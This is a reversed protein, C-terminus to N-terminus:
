VGDSTKLLKYKCLKYVAKGFVQELHSVVLVILLGNLCNIDLLFLCNLFTTM